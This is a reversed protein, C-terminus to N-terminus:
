ALYTIVAFISYDGLNISSTSVNVLDVMLYNDNKFAFGTIIMREDFNSDLRKFGMVSDYDIDQVLTALTTKKGADIYYNPLNWRVEKDHITAKSKDDNFGYAM